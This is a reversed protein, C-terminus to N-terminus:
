MLLQDSLKTLEGAPSGLLPSAAMCGKVEESLWMEHGFYNRSYEVIHNGECGALAFGIGM